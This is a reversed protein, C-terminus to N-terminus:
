EFIGHLNGELLLSEGDSELTTGCDRKVRSSSCRTLFSSVITLSLGVTVYPITAGATCIACAL